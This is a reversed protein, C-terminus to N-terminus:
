AIGIEGSHPLSLCLPASATQRWLTSCVTCNERCVSLLRPVGTNIVNISMWQDIPKNVVFVTVMSIWDFNSGERFDKVVGVPRAGVSDGDGEVTRPETFQTSLLVILWNPGHRLYVGELWLWVRSFVSVLGLLRQPFSLVCIVCSSDLTQALVRAFRCSWVESFLWNFLSAVARFVGSDDLCKCMCLEAHSLM